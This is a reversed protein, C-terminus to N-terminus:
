VKCGQLRQWGNLGINSRKNRIMERYWGKGEECEQRRRQRRKRGEWGRSGRVKRSGKNRKMKEGKGAMWLQGRQKSIEPSLVSRLLQAM